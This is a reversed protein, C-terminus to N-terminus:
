IPAPSLDAKTLAVEFGTVRAEDFGRELAWM